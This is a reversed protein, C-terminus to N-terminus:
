PPWFKIPINEHHSSRMYFVYPHNTIEFAYQSRSSRRVMCVNIIIVPRSKDYAQWYFVNQMPM